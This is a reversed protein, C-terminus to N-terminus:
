TKKRLLEPLVRLSHLADQNRGSRDLLFGKCGASEPGDRDDARDGVHVLQEHKIGLEACIRTFVERTKASSGFEPTCFLHAFRDRLPGLKLDLFEREATTVVILTKDSLADLTELVDPYVTVSEWIDLAIRDRSLGFRELWYSLSTWKPTREIYKASYYAAFVKQRADDIPIDHKQAYLRPIEENWLFDDQSDSVLTGDMDFSVHTIM